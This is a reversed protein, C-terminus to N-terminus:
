VQYVRKEKLVPKMSFVKEFYQTKSEFLAQELAIDETSEVTFVLQRDKSRVRLNVFKQKHSQDLANAVRLIASLKAVILYEEKKLQEMLEEYPDLPLTNYLVTYAVIQREAHSLGIIESSMIIQFSCRPADALSIYKGCDHLISAVHLLLRERRGLGHMKKMTDFIQVSLVSLAEIHPSYSKYHRSLQLSASVIDAEFDHEVPILHNRQAYDFAIGDNINLGPVWIEKAKLSQTLTRFLLVSPVILPDKENALSLDRCIEEVSHDLLRSILALFDQASVLGEEKHKKELKRILAMGYDNMFILSEVGEEVYEEMQLIYHKLSYGEKLLTQLRISGIDLFQTTIIQGKRFLTIQIGAGGVDIVAASAQIMKEFQTRGAVSQYSIFRHESNSIVKVSIGTRLAIQDLVFLENEADRLINSGYVEYHDVHYSVIVKLFAALTDCLEVVREYGIAGTEYVDRGLDLRARIHDVEHLKKKSNIEFIKLSVEYSGIYVSAFMQLLGM